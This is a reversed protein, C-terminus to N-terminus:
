LLLGWRLGGRLPSSLNYILNRSTNIGNESKIGGGRLSVGGEEKGEKPDDGEDKGKKPSVVRKRGRKPLFWGRGEGRQPLNPPPRM